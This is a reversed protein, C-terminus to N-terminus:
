PDTGSNGDVDVAEEPLENLASCRLCNRDVIKVPGATEVPQLGVNKENKWLV